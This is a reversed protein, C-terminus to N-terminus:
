VLLNIADNVIYVVEAFGKAADAVAEKGEVIAFPSILRVEPHLHQAVAKIDKDAMANYYAQAIAVDIVLHKSGMLGRHNMSTILLFALGNSLFMSVM